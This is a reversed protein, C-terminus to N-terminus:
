GHRGVRGSNARRVERADGEVDESAPVRVGYETLVALCTLASKVARHRRSCHPTCPNSSPLPRIVTAPGTHAIRPGCSCPLTSQDRGFASVGDSSSRQTVPRDKPVSPRRRPGVHRGRSIRCSRVVTHGLRCDDQRSISLSLQMLVANTEPNIEAQSSTTM